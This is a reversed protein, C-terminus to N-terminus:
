LTCGSEELCKAICPTSGFCIFAHGCHKKQYTCCSSKCQSGGVADSGCKTYHPVTGFHGYGGCGGRSSSLKRDEAEVLETDLTPPSYDDKPPPANDDANSTENHDDGYVENHYEPKHDYGYSGDENTNPKASSSAARLNAAHCQANPTSAILIATAVLLINLISSLYM